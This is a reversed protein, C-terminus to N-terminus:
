EICVLHKGRWVPIECDCFTLRKLFLSSGHCEALVNIDILKPVKSDHRTKSNRIRVNCVCM